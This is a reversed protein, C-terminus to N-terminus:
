GSGFLEIGRAVCRGEFGHLLRLIELRVAGSRLDSPHLALRTPLFQAAPQAFRVYALTSLLRARTRTAFNLVLSPRSRGRAPDYIRVHDETFRCGRGALMPLLWRSMSWAPPVFGTPRLGARALVAEGEDLRRGAEVPDVDSFEAEHHSVWRQSYWHRISSMLDDRRLRGSSAHLFGHLYTEHGAAAWGRLRSAFAPHEDLPWAGHFNPIVLLTPKVGYAGAVAILEEVEDAWAPSVDHLSVHVRTM